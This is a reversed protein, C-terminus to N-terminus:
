SLRLIRRVRRQVRQDSRRRPWPRRAITMTGAGYTVTRTPTGVGGTQSWRVGVVVAAANGSATHSWTTSADGLGSDTHGGSVSDFTVSPAAVVVAPTEVRVIPSWEGRQGDGYIQRVQYEYVSDASLGVDDTIEPSRTLSLCIHRSPRDPGTEAEQRTSVRHGNGLRGDVDVQRHQPEHRHREFHRAPSIPHGAGRVRLRRFGAAVRGAPRSCACTTASAVVRDHHISCVSSFRERRPRKVRLNM